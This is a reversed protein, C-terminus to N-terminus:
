KRVSDDGKPIIGAMVRKMADAAFMASLWEMTHSSGDSEGAAWIEEDTLITEREFLSHFGERLAVYNMHM